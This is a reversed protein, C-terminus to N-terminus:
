EAQEIDFLIFVEDPQECYYVNEQANSIAYNLEEDFLRVCKNGHEERLKQLRAILVDLTITASAFYDHEKNSVTM